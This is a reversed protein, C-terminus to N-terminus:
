QEILYKIDDSVKIRFCDSMIVYSVAGAESRCNIRREM